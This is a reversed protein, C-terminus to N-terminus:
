LIEPILEKGIKFITKVTYFYLLTVLVDSSLRVCVSLNHQSAVQPFSSLGIRHRLPVRKLMYTM